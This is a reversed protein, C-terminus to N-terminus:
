MRVAGNVFMVNDIFKLSDFKLSTKCNHQKCEGFTQESDILFCHQTVFVVCHEYIWYIMDGKTNRWKEHLMYIFKIYFDYINITVSAAECVYLHAIFKQWFSFNKLMKRRHVRSPFACSDHYPPFCCHFDFNNTGFGSSLNSKTSFSRPHTM